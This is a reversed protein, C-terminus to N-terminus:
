DDGGFPVQREAFKNDFKLVGIKTAANRLNPVTTHLVDDLDSLDSSRAKPLSHVGFTRLAVQTCHHLSPVPQSCCQRTPENHARGGAHQETGSATAACPAVLVGCVRREPSVARCAPQCIGRGAQACRPSSPTHTLSHHWLWPRLWLMQRRQAYGDKSSLNDGLKGLQRQGYMWTGVAAAFSVGLVPLGVEVLGGALAGVGSVGGAALITSVMGIWQVRLLHSAVFALLPM